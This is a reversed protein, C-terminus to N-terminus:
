LVTLRHRLPSLINLFRKDKQENQKAAKLAAKKAAINAERSLRAQKELVTEKRYTNTKWLTEDEYVHTKSYVKGGSEYVLRDKDKDEYYTTTHNPEKPDSGGPHPTSRLLIL